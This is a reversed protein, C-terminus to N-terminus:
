AVAQAAVLRTSAIPLGDALGRGREVPKGEGAPAVGPRAIRWQDGTRPVPVGGLPVGHDSRALRHLASGRRAPAEPRRAHCSRRGPRPGRARDRDPRAIGDASNCSGEDHIWPVHVTAPIEFITWKWLHLEPMESDRGRRYCLSGGCLPSRCGGGRPSRPRPSRATATRYRLLETLIDM